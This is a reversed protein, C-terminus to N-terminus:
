SGPNRVALFAAAGLLFFVIAAVRVANAQRILRELAPDGLQGAQGSRLSRNMALESQLSAGLSLGPSGLELWLEHHRVRLARYLRHSLIALAVVLLFCVVISVKMVAFLTEHVM